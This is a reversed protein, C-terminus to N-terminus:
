ILARTQRAAEAAESFESHLLHTEIDDLASNIGASWIKQKLENLAKKAKKKDLEDCSTEIELLKEKLFLKDEETIKANNVKEEPTLKKVLSRIAEILAPTESLMVETNEERGANELKSAIGSLKTEGINALASKIGHVTIIYLGMDEKDLVAASELNCIIKYLAELIVIANKADQLFFKIINSGGPNAAYEFKNDLQERRAKEVVEPPKKNRIFENLCHNLERSDIPKSIYGDFGNKLFMEEQGVLANATLAIIFQTYGMNRIIKVAEVGDMQPMMHDMFIVDYNVGNKIKEIAELGSSAAEIKLGYPTLMGVIVYINSEVDDVVLVHGYPMYERIFQSKKAIATNNFNFNALSEALEVGCVSADLRKQPIQVTFTSGKGLESEIIIEGKM